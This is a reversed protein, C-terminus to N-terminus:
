GPGATNAYRAIFQRLVSTRNNLNVDAWNNQGADEKKTEANNTGPPLAKQQAANEAEVGTTVLRHLYQPGGAKPGTGSLGRGGFPQVGVIAGIMNRNIYINGAQIKSAVITTLQEIRSHMGFTLGYGTENIQQIVADLEAARYRIVHVIPGFVERPLLSLKSIEYLAPAFFTSDKEEPIKCTYLMRGIDSLYETHKHLVNLAKSDIVPGIDTSLLSPDGIRLEAMAGCIMEIVTDAIEDQLFLVRLASCRQGASQFGSNIVDDVVQEPLATSDVLMCNQGGTEAILPVPADPRHALRRSIWAGTETSGTFIVAKIRPDPVIHEGVEPGRAILLEVVGHPFGCDEMLEIVRHAILSTQEAPKAIVTNGTALAASVQGLFIALPFNWPSICLVVGRAHLGQGPFDEQVARAAYYRCFDVAERVEAVGDPITKGAEKTCLAILESQHQELADSLANLLGSRHTASTTSWNAFACQASHLAAKMSAKDALEVTGITQRHDAPNIIHFAEDGTCYNLPLTDLWANMEEQMPRLVIPDTLDTGVANPREAGYLEAPLPINPNSKKSQLRLQELPDELLSEVPIAEDVINNVFSSNAGNELLRRVLYALLDAHEGVPAYIRCAVKDDNLVQDYLADGMGHLRQFEYGTRATDMELITAVTYANHTAFQPYISDRYQLLKKACAQYSVDTSAKQTFVPFDSFGEMQALKIETDWYAGKVLRLMMKRGVRLTLERVWEIVFIGRRQYAQVAIGFGEWGALDPNSFLTEIIDLSIELRDAEEADVTFGIDYQRAALALEKLKPLLEEKVRASHSFEYRPHLASLKVSIGPSDYPGRGDAAKGIVDIANMYSNFYHNADAMTRAGEGLMDYSYRYGQAEAERAREVASAITTGLVFQTGMIKMAYRVSSRIVPEGLRGMTKRLLGFQATAHEDNYGVVKGTLLLGWASANVFLSDSNGLHSSWNGTALKDRILRDITLSDPVRLLAEALCMLVVGEETSLAFENLLADVGGKGVQQARINVVLERAREWARSRPANGTEAIPMLYELVEDEDKRYFERLQARSPDDSIFPEEFLM